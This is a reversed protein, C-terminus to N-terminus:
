SKINVNGEAAKRKKRDIIYWVIFGILALGLAVLSWFYWQKWIPGAFSLQGFVKLTRSEKKPTITVENSSESEANGKYARVMYTYAKDFEVKADTYEKTDKNIEVVLAYDASEKKSYIRYNEIDTTKSADWTLKVKPENKKVDSVDQAKLNAPSKISTDINKSPASGVIGSGPAASTTPTSSPSASPSSAPTGYTRFYFDEDAVPDPYYAMGNPYGNSGLKWQTNSGTSINIEYVEGAKVAVSGADPTFTYWNWSSIGKAQGYITEGSAVRILRLTVSGDGNGLYVSISNLTPMGPKFTQACKGRDRITLLSVSGTENSADLQAAWAKPTISVVLALIFVLALFTKIRTRM